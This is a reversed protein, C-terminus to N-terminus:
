RGLAPGEHHPGSGRTHPESHLQRRREALAREAVDLAAQEAARTQEIREVAEVPALARLAEIETRARNATRAQHEASVHPRAELYFGRNKLVAETGFVRAYIRLRPLDDPRLTKRVANAAAEHQEAAEVVRPDAGIRPRTVREIWATSKENWRPPSGWGRTLREEADHALAQAAHHERTAHRKGFRSVTRLRDRATQRQADADQWEALAVSAQKTLPAAVEARVRELQEAATASVQRAQDREDRQAAQLDTLADAARRWLAARREAREAQQTLAAIETSVLKVLGDDVLGRVAEAARQTADALGRDARDREVADIFQQRADATNEAIVHLQNEQKGRTMGVYVAAGSMADSLITHSGKATVGQVGYATSAYALHAHEIVYAAPLHVTHERKRDSRAAVAGIAGDDAVHQVIWLQRNAM